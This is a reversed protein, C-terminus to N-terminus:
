FYMGDIFYDQFKINNSLEIYEVKNKIEEIKEFDDDILLNLITGFGATNGVVKIKDAIESPLMKLYLASDQDLHSGFGGALYVHDIQKYSINKANVLTRIGASIAGKCLQIERIDKQTLYINKNIYFTDEMYGNEDIIGNQRLIAILKLIGSGCIGKAKKDGITTYYLTDDKYIFNDIAGELSAMGCSINGGEFAPGAATACTFISEKNGLVIEGNTGIDLFLSIDNNEAIETAYIGSLIDGGVYGSIMPFVRVLDCKKLGISDGSFVHGELTLAKFPSVGITKPDLNMLYHQMITNGVIVTEEIKSINYKKTLKSIEINLSDILLKNMKKLNEKSINSNHIRSLVDSGFIYQPNLIGVAKLLKAKTLDMFYIAITTTGIDIALGFGNKQSKINNLLQTKLLIQSLVNDDEILEIKIDKKLITKCALVKKGNVLIQCKGCIGNGGCPGQIFINNDLLFKYLNTGAIGEIEKDEFIVNIKKTM